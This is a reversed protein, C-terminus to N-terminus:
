NRRLVHSSFSCPCVTFAQPTLHRLLVRYVAFLESLTHTVTLTQPTRISFDVQHCSWTRRASYFLCARPFRTFQFMKTVRPFSIIGRTTALSLPAARLLLALSILTLNQFPGGSRTFTGYVVPSSAAFLVAPCALGAPLHPTWGGLSFVRMSRYHVLVM